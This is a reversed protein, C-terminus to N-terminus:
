KKSKHSSMTDGRYKFDYLSLVEDFPREMVVGVTEHDRGKCLMRRIQKCKELYNLITLNSSKIDFELRIISEQSM